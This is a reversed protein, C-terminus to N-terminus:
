KRRRLVQHRSGVQRLYLVFESEQLLIGEPAIANINFLSERQGWLEKSCLESIEQDM